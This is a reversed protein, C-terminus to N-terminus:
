VLKKNYYLWFVFWAVAMGLIGGGVTQSADLHEAGFAGALSSEFFSIFLLWYLTVYFSKSAAQTMVRKSREDELPMGSKIDRYRRIIFFAMFVIILLPIIFAILSGLNVEGGSIVQYAYLSITGLLLVSVISMLIIRLKDKKM